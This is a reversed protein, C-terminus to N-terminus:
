TKKWNDAFEPGLEYNRLLSKILKQRKEGDIPDLTEGTIKFYYNKLTLHITKVLRTEIKKRSNKEIVANFWVPFQIEVIDDKKFYTEPFMKHLCGKNPFYSSFLYVLVCLRLGYFPHQGSLKQISHNVM